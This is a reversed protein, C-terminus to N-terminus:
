PLRPQRTAPQAAMCRSHRRSQQSFHQESAGTSGRRGRLSSSSLGLGSLLLAALLLQLLLLAAGLGVLLACCCALGRLLRCLHLPALLLLSLPLQPVLVLPAFSLFCQQRQPLLHAAASQATVRAQTHM